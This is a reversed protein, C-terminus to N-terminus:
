YLFFIRNLKVHRFKRCQIQYFIISLDIFPIHPVNELFEENLGTNILKIRLRGKVNEWDTFYEVNFGKIPIHQNYSKEIDAWILNLAEDNNDAIDRYKRFYDNLYITPSLNTELSMVSLGDLVLGYVLWPGWSCPLSPVSHGCVFFVRGLCGFVSSDM